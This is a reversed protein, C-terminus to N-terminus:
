EYKESELLPFHAEGWRTNPIPRYMYLTRKSRTVGVYACKIEERRFSPAMYKFSKMCLSGWVDCLIVNTAERGKVSHITGVTINSKRLTPDKKWVEIIYQQIEEQDDFLNIKVGKKYKGAESVHERNFSIFNFWDKDFNFEQKFVNKILLDNRDYSLDSSFLNSKEKIHEKKLIKLFKRDVLQIFSCIERGEVKHGKKLNDWTNLTNVVKDKISYNFDRKTGVTSKSKWLINKKV